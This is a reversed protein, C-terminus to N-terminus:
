KFVSGFGSKRGLNLIFNTPNLQPVVTGPQPVVTGPQPVVTGPQPRVEDATPYTDDINPGGLPIPNRWLTPEQPVDYYDVSPAPAVNGLGTPPPRLAEMNRRNQEEAAIATDIEGRSAGPNLSSAGINEMPGRSAGTLPDVSSGYLDQGGAISDLYAKFEMDSTAGGGMPEVPLTPKPESEVPLTPLQSSIQDMYVSFAELEEPTMNNIINSYAELDLDSAAGAQMQNEIAKLARLRKAQLNEESEQDAIIVPDAM